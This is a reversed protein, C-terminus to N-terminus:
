PSEAVPRWRTDHVLDRYTTLSSPRCPRVRDTMGLHKGGCCPIQTHDGDPVVSVRFNQLSRISKSVRSWCWIASCPARSAFEKPGCLQWRHRSTRRKPCADLVRLEEARRVPCHGRDLLRILSGPEEFHGKSLRTPETV